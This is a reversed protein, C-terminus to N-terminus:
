VNPRRMWPTAARGGRWPVTFRRYRMQEWVGSRLGREKTVACYGSSYHSREEIITRESM